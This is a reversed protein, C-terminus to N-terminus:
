SPHRRFDDTDIYLPCLPPSLKGEDDKKERKRGNTKTKHHQAASPVPKSRKRAHSTQMTTKGVDVESNPLTDDLSDEFTEDESDPVIGGYHKPRQFGQDGDESDPNYDFKQLRRLTRLQHQLPSPKRPVKTIRTIRHSSGMTRTSQAKTPTSPKQPSTWPSLSDRKAGSRAASRLEM